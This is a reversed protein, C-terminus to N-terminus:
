SDSFTTDLAITELVKFPGKAAANNDWRGLGQRIPDERHSVTAIFCITSRQVDEQIRRPDLEFANTTAEGDHRYGHAQVDVYQVNKLVGNVMIGDTKWSRRGLNTRKAWYLSVKARKVGKSGRNHVKVFAFIKLKKGTRNAEFRIDPSRNLRTAAPPVGDDAPNDKLYLDVFELGASVVLAFDQKDGTTTAQTSVNVGEVRVTYTGTQPTNVVIQQVNNNAPGGQVITGNPLTVSLRLTNVLAGSVNPNSPFDTWVLTVRFPVMNNVVKFTFDRYDGTGLTDAPNDRFEVKVPYNPFLSNLLSVKGWGQNNDPVAGVESPTYQGVLPTAGHILMAKLLAASPNNHLCVSQLYQRILAVTGAVLPTAMSTGGMYMYFQRNPDGVPLLGWGNGTCVSSRVSLINTGPAVVDPKIRGDGTPGRSSFAVMGEPDNSLPDTRIPNTPFENPWCTGYTQCVGGPNFGGAARDNESAGVSICNKACSQSSLSNNDIVGNRDADIGANGAAYLIIMDKHNWIFEDIERSNETYQGFLNDGWSNTHIRAGDNYAQQFLDNLNDPIGFLYYGDTYGQNNVWQKWNAWQEVAQLALRANFAIGRISGSSKAGSGLVSGAVHSGHGSDVDAAGDDFTTNDLYQRVGSVVPWSHINVIRSEFDDHMTADNIGTDLGTDAVAVIQGDGDLGHKNWVPQVGIIRAAVDNFLKPLAYPEIWKVDVMKAVKDINALDLSARIRGKGTAVITGGLKEIEQSVKKPDASDHLVININGEPKLIAKGAEVSLARFETPSVKGKKGMLLPSVKYAPEYLGVWCVFPFKEVKEKAQSTMYVLIANEPIYNHLDAGLVKIKESWEAKLPGVFQVIWYNKKEKKVEANSLKLVPPPSPVKSTDFEVARLRIMRAGEQVELRVGQGKLSGIQSEDVEALISNPYTALVKSVGAEIKRRKEGDVKEVYIMVRKSNM